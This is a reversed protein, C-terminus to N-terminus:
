RFHASVHANTVTEPWHGSPYFIRPEHLKNRFKACLVATISVHETCFKLTIQYSLSLNHVFSIEHSRLKLHTKSPCGINCCDNRHRWLSRSKTEFWWCWWQKSLWKNLRLDFFVDFSRTGRGKHPSNVPWRHIGRVFPWYHLFHKWKM